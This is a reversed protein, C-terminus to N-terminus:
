QPSTEIKWKSSASRVGGLEVTVIRCIYGIYRTDVRSCKISRICAPSFVPSQLIMNSVHKRTDVHTAVSNHKHLWIGEFRIPLLIEWKGMAFVQKSIYQHHSDYFSVVKEIGIRRTACVSFAFLIRKRDRRWAITHARARITQLLQSLASINM